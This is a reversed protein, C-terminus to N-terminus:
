GGGRGPRCPSCVGGALRFLVHVDVGAPGTRPRVGAKEVESLEAEILPPLPRMLAQLRQHAELSRTTTPARKPSIRPPRAGGNRADQAAFEDLAPALRAFAERTEPRAYPAQSAVAVHRLTEELTNKINERRAAEDEALDGSLLAWCTKGCRRARRARTSHDESPGQEDAGSRAHRPAGPVRRDLQVRQARHFVLGRHRLHPPPTQFGDINEHHRDAIKAPTGATEVM